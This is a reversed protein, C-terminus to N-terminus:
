QYESTNYIIIYNNFKKAFIYNKANKLYTGNSPNMVM